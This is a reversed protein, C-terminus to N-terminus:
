RSWRRVADAYVREYGRVMAAKGLRSVALRRVTRRDLTRAAAVARVAAALHDPDFGDAPVPPLIRGGAPPVIEPLGGRGFAVVPTGCAMAEAAVLGFPENWVPTVLAVASHGALRALDARGLHGAYRVGPGLRPEVEGAFYATDVVPGALTLEIGAARALEIALHPAKEPVIRGSWVAGSGGPGARWVTTDVGNRVVSARVVPRWLAATARSVAVFTGVRDARRRRAAMREAWPLLPTHLTTVLPAPLTDAREIPVPHLSNNHIVDFSGLLGDRVQDFLDSYAAREARRVAPHDTTDTRDRASVAPLPELEHTVVAQDSGRAAVLTVSHGRARLGQALSFTHAELGGAFPEGIPYRLSAVILVKVTSSPSGARGSCPFGM